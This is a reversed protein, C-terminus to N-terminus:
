SSAWSSTAARAGEGTSAGVGAMFLVAEGLFSTCSKEFSAITIKEVEHL